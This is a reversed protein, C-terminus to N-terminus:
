VRDWGDPYDFSERLAMTPSWSEWDSDFPSENEKLTQVAREGRRYLDRVQEATFIGSAQAEQVEDEDKLYWNTRDASVMIDLLQDMYDFGLSTRRVPEVLDIKWGSFIHDQDWEGSYTYGVGVHILYLIGIPWPGGDLVWEDQPIRITEGELTHPWLNVTHPPRYLAIWDVSDQVVRVPTVSYVKNRWVERLIIGQGPKWLKM